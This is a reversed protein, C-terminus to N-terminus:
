KKEKKENIKFLYLNIKYILIIVNYIRLIHINLFYMCIFVVICINVNINNADITVHIM